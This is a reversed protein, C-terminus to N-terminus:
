TLQPVADASRPSNDLKIRVGPVEAIRPIGEACHLTISGTYRQDYLSQLLAALDADAIVVRELVIGFTLPM